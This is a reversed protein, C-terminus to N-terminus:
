QYKRNEILSIVTDPQGHVKYYKRYSAVAGIMNYYGYFCSYKVNFDQKEIEGRKNWFSINKHEAEEKQLMWIKGRRSDAVCKNLIEECKDKGINSLRTVAKSGWNISVDTGAYKLYYKRKSQPRHSFEAITTIGDELEINENLIPSCFVFIARIEDSFRDRTKSWFPLVLTAKQDFLVYPPFDYKFYYKEKRELRIGDKIGRLRIKFNNEGCLGFFSHTRIFQCEEASHIDANRGWYKIYPMSEKIFYNVGAPASANDTLYHVCPSCGNKLVCPPAQLYKILQNTFNEVPSTSAIGFGQQTYLKHLLQMEGWLSGPCQIEVIKGLKMEDTRFYVPKTFHEDSLSKHYDVGFSEPTENLLWHLLEENNENLAERFISICTDQFEHILNIRNSLSEYKEKEIYVPKDAIRQTFGIESKYVDFETNAWKYIESNELM